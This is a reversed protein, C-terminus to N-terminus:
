RAINNRWLRNIGPLTYLLPTCTTLQCNITAQLLETDPYTSHFLFAVKILYLLVSLMALPFIM